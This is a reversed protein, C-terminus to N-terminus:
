LVGIFGQCGKWLGLQICGVKVANNELDMEEREMQLLKLTIREQSTLKNRKFLYNYINAYSKLQTLDRETKSQKNRNAYVEM